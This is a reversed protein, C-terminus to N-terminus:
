FKCEEDCDKVEEGTYDNVWDVADKYKLVKDGVKLIPAGMIHNEKAVKMVEEKDDITTFEINKAKLKRELVNCNQCNITYFIVEM